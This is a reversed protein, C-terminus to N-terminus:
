REDSRLYALGESVSNIQPVGKERRIEALAATVSLPGVSRSEECENSDACEEMGDEEPSEVDSGEGEGEDEDEDDESEGVNIVVGSNEERLAEVASVEDLGRLEKLRQDVGGRLARLAREVETEPKPKNAYHAAIEEIQEWAEDLLSRSTDNNTNAVSRAHTITSQLATVLTLMLPSDNPDIIKKVPSNPSGTKSVAPEHDIGSEIESGSPDSPDTEKVSEPLVMSEQLGPSPTSAPSSPQSAREDEAEGALNKRDNESPTPVSFTENGRFKEGRVKMLSEIAAEIEEQDLSRLEVLEDQSMRALAEVSAKTDPNMGYSVVSVDGRQLSVETILRHTYNSDWEQDKVRFAFSMENLDGRRMKPLIRQVDPDSADLIARVKLGRRDASLQLTRSTTRALPLGEHNLLLQVDPNQALTVDFARKDIQEIWGGREIGGYCDYPEYTAAYGELVVQEAKSDERFELPAALRRQERVDLIKARNCHEIPM